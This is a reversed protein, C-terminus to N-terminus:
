GAKVWTALIENCVLSFTKSGAYPAVTNPFAAVVSGVNIILSPQAHVLVPLLAHTIASSFAANIGFTNLVAKPDGEM